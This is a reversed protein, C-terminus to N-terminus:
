SPYKSMKRKKISYLTPLLVAFVNVQENITVYPALGAFSTTVIEDFSFRPQPPMPTSATTTMTITTTTPTLTVPAATLAVPPEPQPTSPKAGPASLQYESM